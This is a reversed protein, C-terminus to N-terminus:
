HCPEKKLLENLKLNKNPEKRHSKKGADVTLLRWTWELEREGANQARKESGGAANRSVRPSGATM